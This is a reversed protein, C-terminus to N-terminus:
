ALRYRKSERKNQLETEKERWTKAFRRLRKGEVRESEEFDKKRERTNPKRSAGCSATYNRERRKSTNQLEPPASCLLARHM